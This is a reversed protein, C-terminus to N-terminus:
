LKRGFSLLLAKYTIGGAVMLRIIIDEGDM